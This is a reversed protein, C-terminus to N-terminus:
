NESLYDRAQLRDTVDYEDGSHFRRSLPTEWWPKLRVEELSGEVSIIDLLSSKRVFEPSFSLILPFEAIYEEGNSAKEKMAAYIEKVRVFPYLLVRPHKEIIEGAKEAGHMEVLYEKIETSDVDRILRNKGDFSLHYRQSKDLLSEDGTIRQCVRDFVELVALPSDQKGKEFANKMLGGLGIEHFYDKLNTPLNKIGAIIEIRDLFNM